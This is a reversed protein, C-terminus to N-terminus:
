KRVIDTAKLICLPRFTCLDLHAILFPGKQGNKWKLIRRTCFTKDNVHIRLVIKYSNCSSKNDDNYCTNGYDNNNVKLAVDTWGDVQRNMQYLEDERSLLTEGTFHEAELNLTEEWSKFDEFLSKIFQQDPPRM